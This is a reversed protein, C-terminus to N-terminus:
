VGGSKTFVHLEAGADVAIAAGISKADKKLHSFQTEGISDGVKNYSTVCWTHFCVTDFWVDVRTVVTDEEEERKPGGLFNIQM